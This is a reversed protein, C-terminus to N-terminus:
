ESMLMTKLGNGGAVRAFAAEADALLDVNTIFRDLAIDTHALWAVAERFLRPTGAFAGVLSLQRYHIANLDLPQVAVDPPMGAFFLVRGVPAVVAMALEIAQPSSTALVVVDWGARGGRARLEDVQIDGILTVSRPGLIDAASEVRAALVDLGLVPLAGRSRAVAVHLTGIPGLGLVLVSDDPRVDAREQGNLVTHLPEALAGERLSLGEPLPVVCGADVADGPVAFFEAMGGPFDYGLARRFSCMNQRAAQCDACRLCPLGPCIAVPTGTPFTAVDSEEVVGSVEHGLIQPGSIRRNGHRWTRIDSGCIGVFRTRVTVGGTPLQPQEVQEVRLDGPRNLVVAIM